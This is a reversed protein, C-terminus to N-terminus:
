KLAYWPRISDADTQTHPVKGVPRLPDQPLPRYIKVFAPTYIRGSYLNKLIEGGGCSNKHSNGEWEEEDGTALNEGKVWETLLM